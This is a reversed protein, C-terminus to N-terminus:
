DLRAAMSELADKSHRLMRTVSHEGRDLLDQTEFILRRGSRRLRRFRDDATEMIWQRTQEGSQPAFLFALGLGVGLGLLFHATRHGANNM